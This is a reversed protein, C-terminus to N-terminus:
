PTEPGSERRGEQKQPDLRGPRTDAEDKDGNSRRQRYRRRRHRKHSSQPSVQTGWASRMEVDKM